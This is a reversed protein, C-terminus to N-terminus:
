TNSGTEDSFNVNTFRDSMHDECFRLRKAKHDENSQKTIRGYCFSGIKQEYRWITSRSIDTEFDNSLKHQLLKEDDSNWLSFIM